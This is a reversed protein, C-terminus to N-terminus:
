LGEHDVTRRSYGKDPSLPVLFCLVVYLFLALGISLLTLFVFLVRVITPDIDFYLGLGGCVGAIKCAVRSRYLKQVPM